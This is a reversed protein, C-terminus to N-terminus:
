KNAFMCNLCVGRHYFHNPDERTVAARTGTRKAGGWHLNNYIAKTNKHTLMARAGVPKLYYAGLVIPPSLLFTVM